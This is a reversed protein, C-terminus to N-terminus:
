DIMMEAPAQKSSNKTIWAFKEVVVEPALDTLM